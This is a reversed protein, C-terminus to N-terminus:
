LGSLRGVSLSRGTSSAVMQYAGSVCDIQDDNADGAGTFVQCENLFDNIWTGRVLKVKGAEARTIWPLSRTLKDQDPRFGKISIGALTRDDLLDDIFGKMQGAEEIGVHIRENLATQTITKRVKPWEDRMRIMDKIYITSDRGVALACSATFDATKRASVALDWFRVWQLGDPLENSSIINFWGRQIRAGGAPAPKQQFLATWDYIGLTSRVHALDFENKFDPWLPEGEIRPDDPHKEAECIAPFSLITWKESNADQTQQKIVRGALDDEHWRTMNILISAGKQQRTYFTSTYWDWISERVTKSEAEERNKIPDDIIGHTFGHGTIGGGVGAAKFVGEDETLWEEVASREQSLRTKFIAQYTESQLIGRVKRSMANALGQSYSAMIVQSKPLRGLIWAPLRRSVLESNHTPLMSEGCLFMQSPSDVQICVTDAMGAPEFDLFRHERQPHICLSKKRPLRAADPMYFLVRYKLSIFRGYLTADGTILSAKYGLSNVLQRVCQALNHNVSTFEVQGTPSVYGDTDILGQLLSLRQEKSGRLYEAPIHKNGLLGMARLQKQLGLVGFNKRDKHSRIPYGSRQIESRIFEQDEHVGSTIFGSTTRGDGLWVGLVYPPINLRKPPLELAGQRQVLPKRYDKMNLTRQYLEQTNYVRYKKHKRCLRVVWDHESDAVISDGDDTTVRYVTRSTFIESRAVVACIAGTEDFVKDGPVLDVIRKYGDPTPIPTNVELAKGHRPPMFVMLRKIEGNAWRELYRCLVKHHWNAQYEPFTYKVFEILERQSMEQNIQAKLKEPMTKLAAELLQWSNQPSTPSTLNLGQPRM